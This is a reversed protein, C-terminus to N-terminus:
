KDKKTLAQRDYDSIVRKGSGCGGNLGDSCDRRNMVDAQSSAVWVTRLVEGHSGCLLVASYSGLIQLIRGGCARRQMTTQELHELSVKRSFSPM